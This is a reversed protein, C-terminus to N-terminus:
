RYAEPAPPAPPTGASIQNDTTHDALTANHGASLHFQLKAITSSGDRKTITASQYFPHTDDFLDFRSEWKTWYAELRDAPFCGRHWLEGWTKTDPPGFNRHLIALLLRHLAAVVLPSEDTVESLQHASALAEALRVPRVQGDVRVCCIWPEHILNFTAM